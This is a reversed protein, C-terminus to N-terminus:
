HSHSHEDGDMHGIANDNTFDFTNDEVKMPMPVSEEEMDAERMSEMMERLHQTDRMHGDDTQHNMSGQIHAEGHSHAMGQYQPFLPEGLMSVAYLVVGSVFVYVLALQVSVFDKRAVGKKKQILASIVMLELLFLLVGLADVHEAGGAFPARFIRTLVWMTALSGHLVLGIEYLKKRDLHILYWVGWGIQAIGAFIFFLGEPLIAWHMWAVVFTHLLGALIAAGAIFIRLVKKKKKM